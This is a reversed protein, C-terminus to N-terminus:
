TRGMWGEEEELEFESECLMADRGISVRLSQDETGFFAADAAEGAVM